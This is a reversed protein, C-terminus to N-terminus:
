PSMIRYSGTTTKGSCRYSSSLVLRLSLSSIAHILTTKRNKISCFTSCTEQNTLLMVPSCSRLLAKQPCCISYVWVSSIYFMFYLFVFSKHISFLQGHHQGLCLTQWSKQGCILSSYPFVHPGGICLTLLLLERIQVQCLLDCWKSRLVREGNKNKQMLVVKIPVEQWLLSIMGKSGSAIWFCSSLNCHLSCLSSNPWTRHNNWAINIKASSREAWFIASKRKKLKMKGHGEKDSFLQTPPVTYTDISCTRKHPHRPLIWFLM